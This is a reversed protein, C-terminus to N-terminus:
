ARHQLSTQQSRLFSGKCPTSFTPEEHWWGEVQRSYYHETMGTLNHGLVDIKVDETMAFVIAREAFSVERVFKKRWSLFDTVLGQYLEKGNFHRINLKRQRADPLRAYSPVNQPVLRQQYVPPPMYHQPLGLQPAQVREVNDDARAYGPQNM